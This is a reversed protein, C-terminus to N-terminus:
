MVKYYLGGFRKHNVKYDLSKQNTMNQM